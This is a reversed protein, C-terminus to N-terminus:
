LAFERLQEIEQVSADAPDDADLRVLETKGPLRSLDKYLREARDQADDSSDFCITRSWIDALRSVQEQTHAIGCLGVAGPGIAWVDTPGEVVVCRGRVYDAGYLLQKHPITEEELKASHWRMGNKKITRTTFSVVTGQYHIPVYLSWGYQPHAAFAGLEWLKEVETPDYGRRRLYNQHQPLLGQVGGPKRFHGTHRKDPLKPTPLGKVLKRANSPTQHHEVLLGVLSHRGCKWCSVAGSQLSIGLHYKGVGDLCWPCDTQLWGARAHHHQGNEVYPIDCRQLLTELKM